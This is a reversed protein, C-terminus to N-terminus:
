LWEKQSADDNPVDKRAKEEASPKLNCAGVQTQRIARIENYLGNNCYFDYTVNKEIWM